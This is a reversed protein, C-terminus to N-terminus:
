DTEGNGGGGDCLERLWVEWGFSPTMYADHAYYNLFEALEDDTMSRIRDGNTMGVPVYAGCPWTLGSGTSCDEYKECNQCKMREGGDMKAGCFPCPKLENMGAVARVEVVDAAPIEDLAEMAGYFEDTYFAFVKEELAKKATEREIYEVM